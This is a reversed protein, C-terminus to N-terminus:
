KKLRVLCSQCIRRNDFLSTNETEGCFICGDAVKRIVISEGDFTIALDTDRQLGLRDRFPKPLVLRGLNDAKRIIGLTQM